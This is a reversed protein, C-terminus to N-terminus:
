TFFFNANIFITVDALLLQSAFGLVIRWALKHRCRHHNQCIIVLQGHLVISKIHHRRGFSRPLCIWACHELSPVRWTLIRSMPPDLRPHVDRASQPDDQFLCRHFPSIKTPIFPEVRRYLVQAPQMNYCYGINLFYGINCGGIYFRPLSCILFTTVIAILVLTLREERGRRRRRQRVQYIMEM